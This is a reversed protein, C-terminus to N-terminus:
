KERSGPYPDSFRPMSLTKCVVESLVADKPSDDQNEDKDPRLDPSCSGNTREIRFAPM